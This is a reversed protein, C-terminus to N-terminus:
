HLPLPIGWSTVLLVPNVLFDLVSLVEKEFEGRDFTRGETKILLSGPNEPNLIKGEEDTDFWFGKIKNEYWDTGVVAIHYCGNLSFFIAARPKFNEIKELGEFYLKTTNM